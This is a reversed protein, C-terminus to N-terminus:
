LDDRLSRLAAAPVYLFLELQGGPRTDAAWSHATEISGFYDVLFARSM